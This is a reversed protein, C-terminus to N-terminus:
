RGIVIWGAGDSQIQYRQGGSISTINANTVDDYIGGGSVVSIPKASIGNSGILIYVRGKCTSADPLTIGTNGGYIRLTYHTDNLLINGSNPTEYPASFSTASQVQAITKWSLAATSASGDTVLIQNASGSTRPLRYNGEQSGASNFFTFTVGTLKDININSKEAGTKQHILNLSGTSNSGEIRYETNTGSNMASLLFSSGASNSYAGFSSNGSTSNVQMNAMESTLFFSSFNNSSSFESNDSIYMTNMPIGLYSYNTELGYFKGGNLYQTKFDGAVDLQKATVLTASNTGISVKGQQYINDSNNTSPTSTGQINWPETVNGSLIKVWKNVSVNGNYYYYGASTVDITQGSPSPDPVTVFVLAGMQDSSYTKTKLQAATIRPALIGDFKTIDTPNGVVDFTVKPDNTNIGVQAVAYSSLCLLIPFLKKKMYKIKLFLSLYNKFVGSKLILLILIEIIFFIIM